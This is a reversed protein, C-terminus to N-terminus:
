KSIAMRNYFNATIKVGDQSVFVNNSEFRGTGPTAFYEELAKKAVPAFRTDGIDAELQLQMVRVHFLNEM